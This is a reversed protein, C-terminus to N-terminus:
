IAKGLGAGRLSVDGRLGVDFRVRHGEIGFPLDKVMEIKGGENVFTLSRGDPLASQGIVTGSHLGADPIELPVNPHHEQINGVMRVIEEGSKGTLVDHGFYMSLDSKPIGTMGEVYDGSSLTDTTIGRSWDGDIGGQISETRNGIFNGNGHPDVAYFFEKGMYEDPNPVDMNKVISVNGMGDDVAYVSFGDPTEIHGVITGSHLGHDPIVFTAEPVQSAIHELNMALINGNVGHLHSEGLYHALDGAPLGTVDDALEMASLEQLPTKGSTAGIGSRDQAVPTHRVEHHSSDQRVDEPHHTVHTTAGVTHASAHDSPLVTPHAMSSLSHGISMGIGPHFLSTGTLYEVSKVALGGIVTGIAFNSALVSRLKKSVRMSDLAVGFLGKMGQGMGLSFEFLSNKMSKLHGIAEMAKSSPNISGTEKGSREWERFTEGVAESVHGAVTKNGNMEQADPRIIDEQDAQDLAPEAKLVGSDSLRKMAEPQIDDSWYYKGFTEEKTVPDRGLFIYLPRADPRVAPVGNIELSDVFGSPVFSDTRGSKARAWGQMWVSLDDSFLGSSMNWAARGPRVKGTLFDQIVKVAKEEWDMRTAEPSSSAPNREAGGLSKGDKRNRQYRPNKWKGTKGVNAGPKRYAEPKRPASPSPTETTKESNETAGPFTPPKAVEGVEPFVSSVDEEKKGAEPSTKVSKEAWDVPTWDPNGSLSWGEKLRLTEPAYRSIQAAVETNDTYWVMRSKDWRFGAEKPITNSPRLLSIEFRDLVENRYLVPFQDEITPPPMVGEEADKGSRIELEKRADPDAFSLLPYASRPKVTVYRKTEHDYTWGSISQIVGKWREEMENYPAMMEFRNRSVSYVIRMAMEESREFFVVGRLSFNGLEEERDTRDSGWGKASEWNRFGTQSM